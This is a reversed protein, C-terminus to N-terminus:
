LDFRTSRLNVLVPHKENKTFHYAYITFSGASSDKITIQTLDKSPTVDVDDLFINTIEYKEGIKIIPDNSPAPWQYVCYVEDGAEWDSYNDGNMEFVKFNTIM